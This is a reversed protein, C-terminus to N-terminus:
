YRYQMTLTFHRPEGFYNHKTSGRVTSYYTKDTLNEGNLAFDLHESVRYGVMASLTTYGGQELRFDASDAYIGSATNVGAGVRWGRNPDDSFRYRTWLNFNHRPTDPSLTLNEASDDKVYETRTFAYGASVDWRPLPSGSIELEVGQSRAVGVPISFGPNDPDSYARNRDEIRFVAAHWNFAGDGHGGKIGLEIQEGERPELPENDVSVARQPQFIGTYSSYLNLSDNLRYILGLYPTFETGSDGSSEGGLFNDTEWWTVRGGLALTFADVPSFRVQGLTAYQESNLQTRGPSAFESPESTEHDPDFLNNPLIYPVGVAWQNSLENSQYTAGLVVEHLRGFLEFPTQLQAEFYDDDKELDWRIQRVAFDGTDPDATLVGESSKKLSADRAVRNAKITVEGGNELRHELEVFYRQADGKQRDWLSGLFTSRDVYALRGDSFAPMGSHPRFEEEQLTVGLSLTTDSTIDYELTGYGIQNDLYVHDIFSDRDDYVGVLRGRLRGEDDLAGTVDVVGRYASESGASVVLSAQPSALARKRALNIAGSPEGAGYLIGAPGRLVEIRDFLATDFLGSSEWASGSDQIPSGDILFSGIDYGRAKVEYQNPGYDRVVVGTTNRMADALTTLNQDDLRQRTIVSVSQPTEKLSRETLGMSARSSTYSDTNETILNRQREGTVELPSLEIEATDPVVELRYSGDARRVPALGTGALLRQLGEEVGYSGQLGATQKGATLTADFAIEIDAMVAFRNLATDLQGAAISYSQQTTAGQGAADQALVTAPLGVALSGALLSCQIARALPTRIFRSHAKQTSM